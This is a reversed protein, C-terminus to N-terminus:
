VIFLVSNRGHRALLSLARTPTRVHHVPKRVIPRLSVVSMGGWM